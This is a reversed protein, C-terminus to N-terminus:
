VSHVWTGQKQCMPVHTPADPLIAGMSGRERRRAPRAAVARRAVVSTAAGWAKAAEPRSAFSVAEISFARLVASAGPAMTPTQCCPRAGYVLAKPTRSVFVFRGM